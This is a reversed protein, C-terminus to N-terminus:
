REDAAGEVDRMGFGPLWSHVTHEMKGAWLIDSSWRLGQSPDERSYILGKKRAQSYRIGPWLALMQDGFTRARDSNEWDLQFAMTSSGLDLAQAQAQADLYGVLHSVM